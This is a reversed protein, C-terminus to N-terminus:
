FLYKDALWFMGATVLAVMVGGFIPLAFKYILTNM